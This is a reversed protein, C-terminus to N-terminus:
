SLRFEAVVRNFGENARALAQTERVVAGDNRELQGALQGITTMNGAVENSVCSQQETATAIQRNLDNIHSVKDAIQRLEDAVDSTCATAADCRSHTRGMSEIARESGQRLKMLSQEIEATSTRTRAALARVEDAVVAFGRGQEGARAAEIAANLALLNTQDAIEGITRIIDTITSTDREIEALNDATLAIEEVLQSVSATAQGVSQESHGVLEHTVQTFSAATNTNGAVDASTASLEQVASVVQDTEGRHSAILAHNESSQCELAEISRGIELSHHQLRLMLQQLRDIFQNIGQSIQALDDEGKVALRRTLDANGQTLDAVMAKLELVPRYLYNLVVVALVVGIALMGVSTVVAKVAASELAAYAVSEELAFVLHWREAGILDIASAYALKDVGEFRYRTKTVQAGLTQGLEELGADALRDGSKLSKSSSALVTGSDDVIFSVVGPLSVESVTQQLIGLGIDGSLVGDGLDIVVSIVPKGTVVDTYIETLKGQPATRGLKYWGRGRPDYQGPDAVGDHWVGDEAASAYALGDEFAFYMSYLDLSDTSLRATAVYRGELAGRRYHEAVARVGEAKAQFWRQIKQAAEQTRASMERDVSAQTTTKLNLYGLLNTSCLCLTVLVIIYLTITRKLGLHHM